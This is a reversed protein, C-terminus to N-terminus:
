STSRRSPHPAGLLWIEVQRAVGCRLAPPHYQYASSCLFAPQEFCLSVQQHTGDLESSEGTLQTNRGYMHFHKKGLPAPFCLLKFLDIRTFDVLFKVKALRRLCDAAVDM